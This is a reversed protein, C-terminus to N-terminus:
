FMSVACADIKDYETHTGVFKVYLLVTKPKFIYSCILRYKNAGINFIVRNTPNDPCRVIDASKFTKIIDNPNKWDTAKLKVYFQEFAKEMYKDDAYRLQVNKWKIVRASM